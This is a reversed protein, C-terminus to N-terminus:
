ENEKKKRALYLQENQRATDESREIDEMYTEGLRLYAEYAHTYEHINILLTQEDVVCPVIIRINTINNKNDTDIWCGWINYEVPMNYRKVRSSNMYILFDLDTIGVKNLASIIINEEM